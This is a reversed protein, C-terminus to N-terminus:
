GPDVSVHCVHTSHESTYIVVTNLKVVGQAGRGGRIRAVHAKNKREAERAM